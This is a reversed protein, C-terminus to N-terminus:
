KIVLMSVQNQAYGLKTQGSNTSNGQKHHRVKLKDYSNQHVMSVNPESKAKPVWKRVEPNKSGGTRLVIELNKIVQRKGGDKLHVM